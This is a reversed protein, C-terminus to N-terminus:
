TNRTKSINLNERKVLEMSADIKAIKQAKDCIEGIMSKIGEDSLYLSYNKDLEIQKGLDGIIKEIFQSLYNREDALINLKEKIKELTLYKTEIAM